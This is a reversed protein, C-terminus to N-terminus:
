LIVVQLHLAPYAFLFLNFALVQLQVPQQLCWSGVGVHAHDQEVNGPNEKGIM